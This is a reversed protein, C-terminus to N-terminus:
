NDKLYGNWVGYSLETGAPLISPPSDRHRFNGTNNARIHSNSSCIVLVKGAPVTYNAGVIPEIGSIPGTLLGNWGGKTLETGAPLISPPSDQFRFIGVSSASVSSGSSCIVLVKGAPVIYNGVGLIPTGGWGYPNALTAGVPASATANADTLRAKVEPSLMDLTVSGAAGADRFYLDMPQTIDAAYVKNTLNPTNGAVIYVKGNLSASDAVFKAQPLLGASTWQSTSPDYSEITNSISIGDYGGAAFIKDGAVWTVPWDRTTTLSTETRWTNSLPDYSEVIASAHGFHGGIAWLRDKFWVLRHAWRGTIMSAKATWQNTSPDFELVQNLRQDSSDRGGVLLIKGNHAIACGNNVESPLATGLNWAGTGPDFIEVSTLDQGGIAYLKGGLTACAIGDRATQMPNLIEWRNTLPDYREALKSPSGDSGGVFYIKGDLVEVGDCANRALSVPAKEEWVLTGNRDSRRYLSYGTPAPQGAPVAMLNIPTADDGAGEGGGGSGSLKALTASDTLYGSWGVGGMLKTGSPIITPTGNSIRRFWGDVSPGLSASSTVVLIKGVPVTFAESEVVPQISPINNALYGSWGNKLQSGSPFFSWGNGSNITTRGTFLWAETNGSAVLVKGEPVTYSQNKFIIPTGGWGYPNALTGGGGSVVGNTGGDGGGIVRETGNLDQYYLKGDPKAFLVVKGPVATPTGSQPQLSLVGNVDAVGGEGVSKAVLAYPVSVLRQRSLAAGDV